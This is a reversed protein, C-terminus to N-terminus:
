NRDTFLCANETSFNFNGATKEKFFGFLWITGDSRFFLELCKEHFASKGEPCEKQCKKASKPEFKRFPWQFHFKIICIAYESCSKNIFLKLKKKSIKLKNISCFVFDAMDWTRIARNCFYETSKEKMHHGKVMCFDVNYDWFWWLGSEKFYYFLTM